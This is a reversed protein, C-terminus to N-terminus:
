WHRQWSGEPGSHWGCRMADPTVVCVQEWEYGSGDQPMLVYLVLLVRLM